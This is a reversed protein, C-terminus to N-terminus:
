NSPWIDRTWKIADNVFSFMKCLLTVYTSYTKNGTIEPDMEYDAISVGSIQCYKGWYQPYGFPKNSQFLLSQPFIYSATSVDSWVSDGVLVASRIVSTSSINLSGDYLQGKERPDSGDDTYYLVAGQVPSTISLRFAEYYIGHPMSFTPAEARLMGFILLSSAVCLTIRKLM